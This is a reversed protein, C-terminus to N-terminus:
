AAATKGTACIDLLCCNPCLPAKKCVERSHRVILAHYEGFLAPDHPLNDMFLSQYKMYLGREPALGLRSLMRTTYTDIVFVPKGVGYLLIADATEHGVGYVSLLEGRLTVLDMRAMTEIDDDFRHGLFHSLAKLKGAKSNFYGSPYILTAVEDNTLDRIVDPSLAGASALNSIAKRVNTWAAGQTLVAGAMVEFWSDGPWWHQPGYRSVLREYVGMLRESLTSM